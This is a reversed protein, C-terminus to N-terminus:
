WNHWIVKEKSAYWEDLLHIHEEEIKTRKIKNTPTVFGNEPLWEENAVSIFQVREHQNLGENITSLLEILEKAM